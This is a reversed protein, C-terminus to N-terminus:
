FVFKLSLVLPPTWPSCYCACKLISDQLCLIYGEQAVKTFVIGLDWGVLCLSIWKVFTCPTHFSTSLASPIRCAQKAISLPRSFHHYVSVIHNMMIAQPTKKAPIAQPKKCVIIRSSSRCSFPLKSQSCCSMSTNDFSSMTIWNDLLLGPHYTPLNLVCVCSCSLSSWTSCKLASWLAWKYTENM